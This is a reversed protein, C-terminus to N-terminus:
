KYHIPHHTWNIVSNTCLKHNVLQQQEERYKSGRPKDSLLATTLDHLEWCKFYHCLNSTIDPLATSANTETVSVSQVSLMLLKSARTDRTAANRHGFLGLKLWVTALKVPLKRAWCGPILWTKKQGCGQTKHAHESQEVVPTNKLRWLKKKLRWLKKQWCFTMKHVAVTAQSSQLSM